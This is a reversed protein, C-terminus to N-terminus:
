TFVGRKEHSLLALIVADAAHPQEAQFYPPFRKELRALPWRGKKAAPYIEVEIGMEAAVLCLGGIVLSTLVRKGAHMRAMNRYVRYDEIAIVQPVGIFKYASRILDNLSAWDIYDKKLKPVPVQAHWNLNIRELEDIYHLKAFGITEGPDIGM